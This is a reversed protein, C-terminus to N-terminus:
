KKPSSDQDALKRRHEIHESLLDLEKLLLGVFGDMNAEPSYGEMHSRMQMLRTALEDIPKVPPYAKELATVIEANVSRGNEEAASVVRAKLDAPIRLRFHPDERGM